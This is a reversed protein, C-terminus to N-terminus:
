EHKGGIYAGCEPCYNYSLYVHVDINETYGCNSCKWDVWGNDAFDVIWNATPKRNKRLADEYGKKYGNTYASECADVWFM